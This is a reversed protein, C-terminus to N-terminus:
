SGTRHHRCAGSKCTQACRVRQQQRGGAAWICVIGGLKSLELDLPLQGPPSPLLIYLDHVLAWTPNPLLPPLSPPSHLTLQLPPLPSPNPHSLPRATPGLLLAPFPPQGSLVHKTCNLVHMSTNNNQPLFEEKGQDEESRTM